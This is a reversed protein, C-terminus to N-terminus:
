LESYKENILVLIDETNNGISILLLAAFFYILSCGVLLSFIVWPSTIRVDVNDQLGKATVIFSGYQSYIILGCCAINLTRINASVTKTSNQQQLLSSSTRDQNVKLIRQSTSILPDLVLASLKQPQCTQIGITIMYVGLMDLILTGIALSLAMLFIPLIMSFYGFSFSFLVNFASTIRSKEIFQKMPRQYESTFILNSHEILYSIIIGITICQCINKWNRKIGNPFNESVQAWGNGPLFPISIVWVFTIMAIYSLTSQLLLNIKLNTKGSGEDFNIKMLYIGIISGIASSLLGMSVILIPYWLVQMTEENYFYEMNTIVIMVGSLTCVTFSCNDLIYSISNNNLEGIQDIVTIASVQAKYDFQSNGSTEINKEKLIQRALHTSKAYVANTIRVFLAVFSFGMPYGLILITLHSVSRVDSNNLTVPNYVWKYFIVQSTFFILNLSINQFCVALSSKYMLKFISDIKLNGNAAILNKFIRGNVRILIMASLWGLFMACLSGFLFSGCVYPEFQIDDVDKRGVFDVLFYIIQTIVLVIYLLIKYICFIYSHFEIYFLNFFEYVNQESYTGKILQTEKSPTDEMLTEVQNNEMNYQQTPTERRFNSIKIQDTKQEQAIPILQLFAWIIGIGNVIFILVVCPQESPTITSNM